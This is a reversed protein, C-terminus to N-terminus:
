RKIVVCVKTQSWRKIMVYNAEKTIKTSTLSSTHCKMCHNLSKSWSLICSIKRVWCHWMSHMWSGGSTCSYLFTPSTVLPPTMRGKYRQAHPVVDRSNNWRCRFSDSQALNTHITQTHVSLHKEQNDSRDKNKPVLALAKIKWTYSSSPSTSHFSACQTAVTSPPLLSSM